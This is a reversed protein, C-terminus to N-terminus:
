PLSLHGTKELGSDIPAPEALVAPAMRPAIIPHGDVAQEIIDAITQATVQGNPVMSGDSPKFDIYGGRGTHGMGALPVITVRRQRVARNWESSAFFPWRGPMLLRWVQAIDNSGLLHYIHDAVLLGPDSGFIGGLSVMYIPSKIWERLYTISGIGMQASGSYGIIFVPVKSEPDYQYRLLSDLFVEAMAQGYLPAYRHDIAIAVQFLNHINILYGALAPGYRKRALAWRWIRSFYPQGTLALNNVSYPFIDDIIVANPVRQALQRLFAQERYSLTHGSVRGIGSLFLVYCGPQDHVTRVIGDSPVQDNYIKDGFWGAWWGLTEFPALAAWLLFGGLVALPVLWIEAPPAQM